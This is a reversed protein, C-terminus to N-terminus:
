HKGAITSMSPETPHHAPSSHPPPTYPRVALQPRKSDAPPSSTGVVRDRAAPAVARLFAGMSRHVVCAQVQVAELPQGLRVDLEAREAVVVMGLAQM